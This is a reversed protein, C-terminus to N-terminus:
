GGVTLSRIASIAAEFRGEHCVGQVGADEYAALAADVCAQRVTDGVGRAGVAASPPNSALAAGCQRCKSPERESWGPRGATWRGCSACKRARDHDASQAFESFSGEVCWRRFGPMLVTKHFNNAVWRKVAEGDTWYTTFLYRREAPREWVTAELCGEVARTEALTRELQARLEETLGEAFGNDAGVHTVPLVALRIAHANATLAKAREPGSEIVPAVFRYGRRAVTRIYTPTSPEDSLVDRLDSIAQALANDTVNAM